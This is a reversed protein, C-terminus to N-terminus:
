AVCAGRAAVDRVAQAAESDDSDVWMKLDLTGAARLALPLLSRECASGRLVAAREGTGDDVTYTMQTATDQVRVLKAVLTLQCPLAHAPFM